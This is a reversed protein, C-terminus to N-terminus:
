VKEIRMELSAGSWQNIRLHETRLKRGAYAIRLEVEFPRAADIERMAPLTHPILYIYLMLHDCPPTTLTVSRDPVTGAPPEALNAGADAVHSSATAFGTRQDAADFCGCMLEVNYRWWGDFRSTLAITFGKEVAM